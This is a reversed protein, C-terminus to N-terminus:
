RVDYRLFRVYAVLFLILELMLLYGIEPLAHVLVAGTSLRQYTFAPLDGLSLNWDPRAHMDADVQELKAWTEHNKLLKNIVDEPDQGTAAMEDATKGLLVMTWSYDTGEPDETFWRRSDFAEKGRLYNLFTNRYQTALAIFHEYDADSTGALFGASNSLVAGPSLFSLGRALAAQRERYRVYQRWVEARRSAFKLSLPIVQEGFYHRLREYYKADGTECSFGTLGGGRNNVAYYYLAMPDTPKQSDLDRPDPIKQLTSELDRDAQRLGETATQYVRARNGVFDPLMTALNPVIAVFFFWLFASLVLAISSRQVFSSIVLGALLLLSLYVAYLVFILAIRVVEPAGFHVNAVFGIVLLSAICAMATPILLTILAGLYKGLLLQWRALSYSMALKLTGGEREGCVADFTFLLALLGLIVTVVVTLDIESFIALYENGRNEGSAETNETDVSVGFDTGVRGELGRHLISLPEPPRVATPQLFSYVSTRSLGDRLIKGKTQYGDLRANYDLSGVYAALAALTVALVTGVMFRLTLALDHVDKFVLTRLLARPSQRRAPGGGADSESGPETLREEDLLQAM